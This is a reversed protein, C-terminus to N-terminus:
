TGPSGQPRGAVVSIDSEVDGGCERSKGAIIIRGEVAYEVPQALGLDARQCKGCWTHSTFWEREWQPRAEFDRRTRM